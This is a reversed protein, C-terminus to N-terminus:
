RPLSAGRRRSLFFSPSPSRQGFIGAVKDAPLTELGILAAALEAFEGRKATKM